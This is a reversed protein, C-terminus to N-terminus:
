QQPAAAARKRLSLRVVAIVIASALVALGALQWGILRSDLPLIASDTTAGAHHSRSSGKGGGPTVTPFLGSPNTPTTFAGDPLTGGPLSFGPLSPLATSGLGLQSSGSTSTAGATTVTVTAHAQFTKAPATAKATATLTIKTGSPVATTTDASAVLESSQTTLTTGV